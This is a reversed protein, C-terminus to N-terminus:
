GNFGELDETIENLSDICNGVGILFETTRQDDIEEQWNDAIKRLMTSVLEEVTPPVPSIM